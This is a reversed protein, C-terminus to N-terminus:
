FPLGFTRRAAAVRYTKGPLATFAVTQGSITVDAHPLQVGDCLVAAKSLDRRDPFVVHFERQFGSKLEVTGTRPYAVELQGLRLRRGKAKPPIRITQYDDQVGYVNQVVALWIACSMGLNRVGLPRGTTGDYRESIGRTRALEVMKLTLDYAVDHYGYRNLGYCVMYTTPPWMDGRWIGKRDFKPDNMAVTPVPYTCWWQKPDRLQEVLATAQEPTAVESALTFFGQITRVPIKQHTDRDVSYFFRTEPDWMKEQIAKVRRAIVKEYREALDHQGLKRAMSVIARESMLLYCTNDVGEVNGYWEGGSDRRPHKTMKMDDLSPTYDMTEFRATQVMDPVFPKYAGYEILGDDDTDRETSYWEDFKVLYPLCREILQRDNTQRAVMDCGWALIPMQSYGLPPWFRLYNPVMGYRYSGKPAEPNNEVTYWYNEFVEHITENDNLPAYAMLVFPTDFIWQGVYGGGPHFWKYPLAPPMPDNLREFICGTYIWKILENLALDETSVLEPLKAASRAVATKADQPEHQTMDASADKNHTPKHREAHACGTM